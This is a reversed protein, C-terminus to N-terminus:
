AAEDEFTARKPFIELIREPAVYHDALLMRSYHAFSLFSEGRLHAAVESQPATAEILERLPDTVTLVEFVGIRGSEGGQPGGEEQRGRHFSGSWGDPLVGIQRLGNLTVDDAPVPQTYGPALRRVLKQSVIGKLADALLYPKIHLNRLRVLTELASHTHLTSLVLHGTSAAEVAIAASEADRMEGVLIIDPDQRLVSRLIEAFGLDLERNVQTQTAFPLDYEIPDEITVINRADDARNLHHLAAYLTTTKGAGTPGTVLVLGSPQALIDQVFSQVSEFAIINALNALHTDGANLRLVIKEGGHCPMVAARMEIQRDNALVVFRGDQPRRTNTINLESMVKIRSIIQRVVPPPVNEEFSLLRGDIRLRVRGVPLGPEVHIDSARDRIAATLVRPLLDQAGTEAIPETQGQTNVFSLRGLPEDPSIAAVKEEFLRKAYRQFDEETVAVFELQYGSLVGALFNRARGDHPNVMAVKAQHNDREVVICQCYRAIRKPLISTAREIHRFNDLKVFPVSPVKELTQSVSAALSRCIARAFAPSSEFLHDIAERRLVLMRGPELARVKAQTLAGTFFSVVGFYDGPFLRTLETEASLHKDNLVAQLEGELIIFLESSERGPEAIVEGAAFTREQATDALRELQGGDLEVFIPVTRIFTIIQQREM